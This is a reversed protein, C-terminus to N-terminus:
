LVYLCHLSLFYFHLMSSKWITTVLLNLGHRGQAVIPFAYTLFVLINVM